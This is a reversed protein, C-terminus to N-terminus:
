ITTLRRTFCFFPEHYWIGARNSGPSTSHCQLAVQCTVVGIRRRCGQGVLLRRTDCCLVLLHLRPATPSSDHRSQRSSHITVGDGSDFTVRHFRAQGLAQIVEARSVADGLALHHYRCLLLINGVHHAGGANVHDCHHAQMMQSRNQTIAAYSSQPALARPETSAVCAQCHWAYQKEKLDDIQANEETSQPRVTGSSARKMPKITGPGTPIPGPQPVNKSPDPQPIPHVGATEALGDGGEDKATAVDVDLDDDEEPSEIDTAYELPYHEQMDMQYARDLVLGYYKPPHEFIYPAIVDFFSAQLDPDSTLWLTGSPKDLEGDVAISYRNTGLGYTATVSDAVEVRQISSLRERWNSRLGNQPTDLGLKALRKRM